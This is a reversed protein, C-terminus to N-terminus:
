SQRTASRRVVVMPSSISTNQIEGRFTNDSWPNSFSLAEIARVAPLDGERMRRVFYRDEGEILTTMEGRGPVAPLLDARPGRRRRGRGARISRPASAPSRPRSSPRGARSVPRTGSPPGPAEGPLRRPRQGRLRDGAGAAAPRLLRGSRLRGPPHDRRPRGPRAEFLGAYIEEKKADLLPCVLGEGDGSLKEALALLTSVPAVPKGSAFALSKVAGVGIRIGTFSGPGAAVAFADVDKVDRGHAGLLFDVSRLLRASHTAASEIGAEGLLTEDELLAM